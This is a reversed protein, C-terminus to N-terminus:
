EDGSDDAITNPRVAYPLFATSVEQHRFWGLYDNRKWEHIAITRCTQIDAKGVWSQKSFFLALEMDILLLHPAYGHTPPEPHSADFAFDIHILNRFPCEATACFDEESPIEPIQIITNADKTDKPYIGQQFCLYLLRAAGDVMAAQHQTCTRGGVGGDMFNRVDIGPVYKLLIAYIHRPGAPGPIEAVFVGLFHPVYLGAYSKLRSYCEHEIAVARKIYPFRDRWPNDYYLPDYFRAVLLDASGEMTATWVQVPREERSGTALPDVLTVNIPPSHVRYPIDHKYCAALPDDVMTRRKQSHITLLLDPWAAYLTDPNQMAPLRPPKVPQCLRLTAQPSYVDTVLPLM